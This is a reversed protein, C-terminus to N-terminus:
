AYWGNKIGLQILEEGKIELLERHKEGFIMVFGEHLAKTGKVRDLKQYM